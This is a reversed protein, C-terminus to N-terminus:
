KLRGTILPGNRLDRLETELKEIEKDKIEDSKRRNWRNVAEATRESHQYNAYGGIGIRVDCVSCRVGVTDDSENHGVTHPNTKFIRAEGGCFPCLELVETLVLM